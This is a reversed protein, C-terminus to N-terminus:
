GSYQGCLLKPNVGAAVARARYAKGRSLAGAARGREVIIEDVPADLLIEVGQERCAKAMARTIAGMGGIAHGWAGPV